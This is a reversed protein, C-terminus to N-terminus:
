PFCPASEIRREREDPWGLYIDIIALVVNGGAVCALATNCYPNGVIVGPIVSVAIRFLDSIAWGLPPAHEKWSYSVWGIAHRITIWVTDVLTVAVLLGVFGIKSTSSKQVSCVTGLFVFITTEIVVFLFDNLWVGHRGTLSTLHVYNTIFFDITITLFTVFLMLTGLNECGPNAVSDVLQPAMQDYAVGLLVGLFVAVINNRREFYREKGDNEM